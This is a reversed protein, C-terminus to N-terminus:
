KNLKLCKGMLPLVLVPFHQSFPCFRNKTEIIELGKNIETLLGSHIYLKNIYKEGKSKLVMFVIFFALFAFTNERVLILRLYM